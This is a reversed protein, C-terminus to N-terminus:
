VVRRCGERPLDVRRQVIDMDGGYDDGNDISGHDDSGITMVVMVTVVMLMHVRVDVLAAYESVKSVNRGERDSWMASSCM